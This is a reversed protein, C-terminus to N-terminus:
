LRVLSAEVCICCLVTTGNTSRVWCGRTRNEANGLNISCCQKTLLCHCYFSDLLCLARSRFDLQPTQWAVFFGSRSRIQNRILLQSASWRADAEGQGGGRHRHLGTGRGGEQDEAEEAPDQDGAAPVVRLGDASRRRSEELEHLGLFLDFFHQLTESTKKLKKGFVTRKKLRNFCRGSFISTSDMSTKWLAGAQLIRTIVQIVFQHTCAHMCIGICAVEMCQSVAPLQNDGLANLHDCFISHVM